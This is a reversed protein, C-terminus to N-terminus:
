KAYSSEIMMSLSSFQANLKGIISDYAIFRAAMTQYKAEISEVTKLREAELSTGEDSLSQEYIGLISSNGIALSNLLENFSTFVGTTTESQGRVYTESFGISALKASDGQIEIDEGM